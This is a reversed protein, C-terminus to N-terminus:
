SEDEVSAEESDEKPVGPLSKVETSTLARLFAALTGAASELKPSDGRWENFTAADYLGNGRLREVLSANKTPLLKLIQELKIMAASGHGRCAQAREKDVEAEARGQWERWEKDFDWLENGAEILDAVDEASLESTDSAGGLWYSTSRASRSLSCYRDM